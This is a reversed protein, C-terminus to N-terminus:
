EKVTENKRQLDFLIDDVQKLTAENYVKFYIKENIEGWYRRLFLGNINEYVLYRKDSEDDIFTHRVTSLYLEGSASDVTFFEFNM